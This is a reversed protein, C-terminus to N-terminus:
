DKSFWCERFDLLCSVWIHFCPKHKKWCLPSMQDGECGGFLALFWCNERLLTKQQSLVEIIMWKRILLVM